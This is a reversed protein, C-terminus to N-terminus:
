CEKRIRNANVRLAAKMQELTENIGSAYEKFLNGDSDFVQMYIGKRGDYMSYPKLGANYGEDKLQECLEKGYRLSENWEKLKLM